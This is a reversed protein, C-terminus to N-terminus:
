NKGGNPPFMAQAKADLMRQTDANTTKVWSGNCARARLKALQYVERLEQVAGNWVDLCVGLLQGSIADRQDFASALEYMLRSIRV